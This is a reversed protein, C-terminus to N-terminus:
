LFTWFCFLRTQSHKYRRLRRRHGEFLNQVESWMCNVEQPETNPQVVVVGECDGVGEITELYALHTPNPTVAQSSHVKVDAKM